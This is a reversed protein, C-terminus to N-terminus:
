MIFELRCAQCEQAHIHLCEDCFTDFGIVCTSVCDPCLQIDCEECTKREYHNACNVLQEERKWDMCSLAGDCRSCYLNEPDPDTAHVCPPTIQQYFSVVQKLHNVTLQLQKVRPMSDVLLKSSIRHYFVRSLDKAAMEGYTRKLSTNGTEGNAGGVAPSEM